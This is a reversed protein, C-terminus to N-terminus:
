NSCQGIYAGARNDHSTFDTNQECSLVGGIRNATFEVGATESVLASLGVANGSSGISPGLGPPNEPFHQVIVRTLEFHGGVRNDDVTSLGLNCASSDTFRFDAGVSNRDLRFNGSARTVLLSGGIRNDTAIVEDSGARDLIVDGGVRNGIVYTTGFGALNQINGGVRSNRISASYGGMFVVDGGVRAGEVEAGGHIRLDGGISTGDVELRGGDADESYVVLTRSIRHTSDLRCGIEAVVDGYSGPALPNGASCTADDAASAGGSFLFLLSLAGFLAALHKM